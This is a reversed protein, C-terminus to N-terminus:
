LVFFFINGLAIFTYFFSTAYCNTEYVIKLTEYIFCYNITSSTRLPNVKSPLLTCVISMLNNKNKKEQNDWLSELKSVNHWSRRNTQNLKYRLYLEIQKM